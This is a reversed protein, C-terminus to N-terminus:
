PRTITNPVTEPPPLQKALEVERAHADNARKWEAEADEQAKKRAMFERLAILGLSAAGAVLGGTTGDFGIPKPEAPKMQALATMFDGKFAALAGTIAKAVDVGGQTESQLVTKEQTTVTLQTPQGAEIGVREETRVTSTQEQRQAACGTLYVTCILLSLKVTSYM